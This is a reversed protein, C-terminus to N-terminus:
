VLSAIRYNRKNGKGRTLYLPYECIDPPQPLNWSLCVRRPSSRLGHELISFFLNLLILFQAGSHSSVLTKAGRTDYTPVWPTKNNPFFVQYFLPFECEFDLSPLQSDVLESPQIALSSTPVLTFCPVDGTQIGASHLYDPISFERRVM